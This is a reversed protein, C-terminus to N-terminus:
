TYQTVVVVAGVTIVRARAHYQVGAVFDENSSEARGPGLERAGPKWLVPSAALQRVAGRLRIAVELGGEFPRALIVVHHASPISFLRNHTDIDVALRRIM